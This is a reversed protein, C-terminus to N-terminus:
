SMQNNVNTGKFKVAIVTIGTTTFIGDVDNIIKLGNWDSKIDSSLENMSNVNRCEVFHNQHSDSGTHGYSCVKSSVKQLTLVIACSILILKTFFMKWGDCSSTLISSNTQKSSNANALIRVSSTIYKEHYDNISAYIYLHICTDIGM